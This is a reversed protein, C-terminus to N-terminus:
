CDALHWVKNRYWAHVGSKRACLAATSHQATSHQATSHQATSHQATSHQATSHQAAGHRATGHQAKGHRAAGHWTSKVALKTCITNATPSAVHSYSCSPVSDVVLFKETLTFSHTTCGFNQSLPKSSMLQTNSTHLGTALNCESVNGTMSRESITKGYWALASTTHGCTM